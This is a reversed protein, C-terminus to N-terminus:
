PQAAPENVWWCSSLAELQLLQKTHSSRPKQEVNHVAMVWEVKDQTEMWLSPWPCPTSKKRCVPYIWDSFLVSPRSGRKFRFLPNQRCAADCLRTKVPSTLAVGTLRCCHLQSSCSTASFSATKQQTRRLLRVIHKQIHQVLIAWERQPM